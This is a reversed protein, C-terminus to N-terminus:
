ATATGADSGGPTEAESSSTADARPVTPSQTLCELLERRVRVINKMRLGADNPKLKELGRVEVDVAQQTRFSKVVVGEEGKAVEFTGKRGKLGCTFSNKFKVKDNRNL